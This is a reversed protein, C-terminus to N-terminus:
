SPGPRVRGPPLNTRCGRSSGSDNGAQSMSANTAVSDVCPSRAITNATRERHRDASTRPRTSALTSIPRRRSRTIPLPTLSRCEPLAVGDGGLCERMLLLCFHKCAFFIKGDAITYESVMGENMRVCHRELKKPRWICDSFLRLKRLVKACLRRLKHTPVFSLLYEVMVIRASVVMGLIKQVSWQATSHFRLIRAQIGGQRLATMFERYTYEKLHMGLPKDCKFVSSVDHPGSFRHPTSFIYRGGPKLIQHVGSLHTAIDDPHFHELVQDSIVIDYSAASEFRELHVGDSVGWSLNPVSADM